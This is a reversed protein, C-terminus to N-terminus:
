SIKETAVLRENMEAIYAEVPRVGFAPEDKRNRWVFFWVAFPGIILILVPIAWALWNVGSKPPTRLIWPGYRDTFFSLIQTKTKGQGLQQMVENKIQVSFPADSELVSLGTCTPCRLQEAIERYELEAVGPPLAGLSLKPEAAIAVGSVVLFLVISSLVNTFRIANM